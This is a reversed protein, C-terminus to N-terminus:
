WINGTQLRTIVGGFECLRDRQVGTGCWFCCGPAQTLGAPGSGRHGSRLPQGRGAGRLERPAPWCQEPQSIDASFNVRSHAGHCRARAQKDVSFRPCGDTVPPAAACGASRTCRLKGAGWAAAPGQLDPPGWPVAGLVGGSPIASSAGQDQGRPILSLGSAVVAGGGRGPPVPPSHFAGPPLSQVPGAPPPLLLPTGGRRSLHPCFPSGASPQSRTQLALALGVPCMEGRPGIPVASSDEGRPRESPEPM